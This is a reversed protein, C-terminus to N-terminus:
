PQVLLRVPALVEGPGPGPVPVDTAEFTRTVTDLRQARMTTM